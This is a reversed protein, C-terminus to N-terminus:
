ILLKLLCLKEKKEKLPSFTAAAAQELESPTASADDAYDDKAESPSAAAAVIDAAEALDAEDIIQEKGNNATEMTSDSHLSLNEFDEVIESSDQPLLPAPTKTLSKPPPSAAKEREQQQESRNSSSKSSSRSKKKFIHKKM